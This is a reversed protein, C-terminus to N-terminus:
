PPPPSVPDATRDAEQKRGEVSVEFAEYPQVDSAIIQHTDQYEAVYLYSPEDTTVRGDAALWIGLIAAILLPVVAWNRVRFEGSANV